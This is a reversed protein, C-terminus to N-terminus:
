YSAYVDTYLADPTPKPAAKAIALADEIMERLEEDIERLEDADIGFEATARADFKV